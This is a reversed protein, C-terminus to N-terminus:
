YYSGVDLDLSFLKPTYAKFIERLLNTAYGGSDLCFWITCSVSDLVEIEVPLVLPREFSARLHPICPELGLAELAAMYDKGLGEEAIDQSSIRKGPVESGYVRSKLVVEGDLPYLGLGHKEWRHSLYLNFIFSRAASIYLDIYEGPIRSIARVPVRSELYERCARREIEMWRPSSSVVGRCAEDIASGMEHLSLGTPPRGSVVAYLAREYQRCLIALGAIHTIPRLVGFRQYSYYNPIFGLEAVGELTRYLESCSLDGLLYGLHIKFCNGVLDEKVAHKQSTGLLIAELSSTLIYTRPNKPGEVTIIQYTTARADKLGHFSIRRPRLIRKIVRVANYTDIGRKILLYALIEGKGQPPKIPPRLVGLERTYEYVYFSDRDLMRSPAVPYGGTLYCKMGLLTDLKSGTKICEFAKMAGVAANESTSPL